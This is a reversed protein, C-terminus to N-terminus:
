PSPNLKYTPTKSFHWNLNSLFSLHSKNAASSSDRAVSLNIWLNTALQREAGVALRYSKDELKSQLRKAIYAGEFNGNFNESGFRLRGGIITSNQRLFSGKNNPDPVSENNRLRGHIILQAHQKLGPMQEFGYALSSWLGGGDLRLAGTTGDPAIWVPAAAVIWSTANWNRKRSEVRCKQAATELKAKEQDIRKLDDPTPSPPIPFDFKLNDDFCKILVQDTKPDGRDWLTLRVGVSTRVSKDAENAGKTTAFSLDSRALFRAIASHSYQFLTLDNGAFLMYPATDIAIGTQFNGNQDVGNILTSAFELPTNPRTVTQPTLGLVTFAPSEPVALDLSAFDITNDSGKKSTSATASGVSGGPAAPTSIPAVPTVPATPHLTSTTSPAPSSCVSLSKTSTEVTLDADTSNSLEIRLSSANFTLVYPLAGELRPKIDSPIEVTLGSASREIKVSLPGDTTFTVCKQDAARATLAGLLVVLMLKVANM